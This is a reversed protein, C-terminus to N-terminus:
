PAPEPTEGLKRLLSEVLANEITVIEEISRLRDRRRRLQEPDDLELAGELALRPAAKMVALIRRIEDAADQRPHRKM